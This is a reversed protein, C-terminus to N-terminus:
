SRKKLGSKLVKLLVAKLVQEVEMNFNPYLQKQKQIHLILGRLVVILMLGYDEMMFEVLMATDDQHLKYKLSNYLSGGGKKDKTLNTKSQKIVYKAYETMVAELNKLEM